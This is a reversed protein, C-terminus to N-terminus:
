EEIVNGEKTYFTLKDFDMSVDNFTIWGKARKYVKYKNIKPKDKTEATFITNKNIILVIFFYNNKEKIIIEKMEKM